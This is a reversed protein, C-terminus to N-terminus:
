ATGVNWGVTGGESFIVNARGYGATRNECEHSRRPDTQEAIEAADGFKEVVWHDRDREVIREVDPAYHDPAVVFREAVKRVHEYQPRTLAISEACFEDACECLFMIPEDGPRSGAAEAVTENVERFLAENSGLQQERRGM